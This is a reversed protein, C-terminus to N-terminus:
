PESFTKRWKENFEDYNEILDTAYQGVKDCEVISHISVIKGYKGVAQMYLPYLESSSWFGNFIDVPLVKQALRMKLKLYHARKVRGGQETDEWWKELVANRDASHYMEPFLCKDINNEQIVYKKFINAEISKAEEAKAFLSLALLLILSKKM